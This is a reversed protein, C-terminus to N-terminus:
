ERANKNKPMTKQDASKYIVRINLKRSNDTIQEFRYFEPQVGFPTNEIEFTQPIKNNFRKNFEISIISLFV